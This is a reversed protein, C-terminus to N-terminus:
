SGVGVNRNSPIIIIIIIIIIIVVFGIDEGLQNPSALYLETVTGCCNSAEGM